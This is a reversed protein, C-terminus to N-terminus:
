GDHRRRTRVARGALAALGAATLLVPAPEPIITADVVDARILGEGFDIGSGAERVRLTVVYQGPDLVLEGSSLRADAFAADGDLVGTDIEGTVGPTSLRSVGNVLVTFADGSFGIDTVRIRVPSASGVTFGAGEVPGVGLFWEFLQWTGLGLAPQATLRTPAAALLLLACGTVLRWARSTM